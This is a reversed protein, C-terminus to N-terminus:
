EFFFISELDWLHAMAGDNSKLVLTEIFHDYYWDDDCFYAGVSGSNVLHASVNEILFPDVFGLSRKTDNCDRCLYDTLPNNSYYYKVADSDEKILKGCDACLTFDIAGRILEQTETTDLKDLLDDSPPCMIKKVPFGDHALFRVDDWTAKHSVIGKGKALSIGHDNFDLKGWIIQGDDLVAMVQEGKKFQSKFLKWTDVKM